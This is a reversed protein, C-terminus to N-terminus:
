LMKVALVAIDSLASVTLVTVDGSMIIVTSCYEGGSALIVSIGWGRVSLVTCYYGEAQHWHFM